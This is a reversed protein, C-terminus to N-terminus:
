KVAASVCSTVRLALRQIDEVCGLDCPSHDANQSAVSLPDVLVDLVSCFRRETRYYQVAATSYDRTACVNLM